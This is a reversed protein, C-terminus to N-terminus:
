WETQWCPELCLLGEEHFITSMQSLGGTVVTVFIIIILYPCVTSMRETISGKSKCVHPDPSHIWTSDSNTIADTQTGSLLPSCHAADSYKYSAESTLQFCGCMTLSMKRKGISAKHEGQALPHTFSVPAILFLVRAKCRSMTTVDHKGSGSISEKM